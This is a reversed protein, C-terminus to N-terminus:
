LLLKHQGVLCQGTTSNGKLWGQWLGWNMAQKRGLYPPNGATDQWQDDSRIWFVLKNEGEKLHLVQKQEADTMRMFNDFDLERGYFLLRDNLVVLLAQTYGFAQTVQKATDSYIKTKAFVAEKPHDFYQALNVIGNRDATVKQWQHNQEAMNLWQYYQRQNHINGLLQESIHWDSLYGFGPPSQQISFPQELPQITINVFYAEAFSTKLFVSGTERETQLLAIELNPEKQGGIFVRMYEGYVELKM